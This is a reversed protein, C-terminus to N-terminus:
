QVTFYHLVSIDHMKNQFTQILEHHNIEAWKDMRKLSEVRSVPLDGPWLRGFSCLAPPTLTLWSCLFPSLLTLWSCFVSSSLTLWSCFVSSSLTLFTCLLSSYLTLFSCLLSSCNVLLFQWTWLQFKLCKLDEEKKRLLCLRSSSLTVLKKYGKKTISVWRFRKNMYQLIGRSVTGKSKARMLPELIGVRSLHVSVSIFTWSCHVSSSM